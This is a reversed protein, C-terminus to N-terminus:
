PIVVGDRSWWSWSERTPTLEHWGGTTPPPEGARLVPVVYAGWAGVHRDTGFSLPPSYGTHFRRLGEL